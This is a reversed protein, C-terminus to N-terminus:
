LKSMGYNIGTVDKLSMKVRKQEKKLGNFNNFFLQVPYFLSIIKKDM